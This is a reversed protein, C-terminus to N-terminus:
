QNIVTVEFEKQQLQITVVASYMCKLTCVYASCHVLDLLFVHMMNM